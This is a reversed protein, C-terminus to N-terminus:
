KPALMAGKPKGTIKRRWWRIGKNVYYSAYRGHMAGDFCLFFGHSSPTAGLTSMSSLFGKQKHPWPQALKLLHITFYVSIKRWLGWWVPLGIIIFLGYLIVWVGGILLCPVQNCIFCLSWLYIYLHSINLHHKANWCSGKIINRYNLPHLDKRHFSFNHTYSYFVLNKGVEMIYDQVSSSSKTFINSNVAIKKYFITGYFNSLNKNNIQSSATNAM